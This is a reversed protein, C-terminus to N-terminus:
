GAPVAQWVIAGANSALASSYGTSGSTLLRRMHTGCRELFARNDAGIAIAFQGDPTLSGWGMGFGPDPDHMLQVGPCTRHALAPSNLDAFTTANTPDGRLEGTQINQFYVSPRSTTTVAGSGSLGTPGSPTRAVTSRRTTLRRHATRCGPALRLQRVHGTPSRISSLTTPGSPDSSQPCRMLVWPPGLADADCSPDLATTTGLRDNIVIPALGHPYFSTTITSLLYDGSALVSGVAARIPRFSSRLVVHSAPAAGASRHSRAAAPAAWAVCFVLALLVLVVGGASSWRRTGPMLTAEGVSVVASGISRRHEEGADVAPVEFYRAWGTRLLVVDGSGSRRRGRRRWNSRAYDRLGGGAARRRGGCGAARGAASDAGGHGGFVEEVRRRLSQLEEVAHGGHLMGGCSFHCLADIHTGVHSGLAMADAASSNGAPGVMDGHRKTLGFLFPPHAPWHPMGTFYPQGLDYVRAGALQEWLPPM